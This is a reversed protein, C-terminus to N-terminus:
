EGLFFQVIQTTKFPDVLSTSIAFATSDADKTIGFNGCVCATILVAAAGQFKRGIAYGGAVCTKVSSPGNHVITAELKDGDGNIPGVM